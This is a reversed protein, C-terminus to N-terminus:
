TLDGNIGSVPFRAGQLFDIGAEIRITGPPIIDVDETLLPRQQAHASFGAGSSFSLALALVAAARTVLKLQETMVETKRRSDGAECFTQSNYTEGARPTLVCYIQPQGNQSDRRAGKANEADKKPPNPTPPLDGCLRLSRM